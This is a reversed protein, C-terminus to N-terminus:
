FTNFSCAFRKDCTEYIPTRLNWSTSLPWMETFRLLPIAKCPLRPDQCPALPLIFVPSVEARKGKRWLSKPLTLMKSCGWVWILQPLQAGLSLAGHVWLSRHWERGMQRGKVSCTNRLKSPFPFLWSLLFAACWSKLAQPFLPASESSFSHFILLPVFLVLLYFSLSKLPCFNM